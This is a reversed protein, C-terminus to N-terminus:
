FSCRRLVVGGCDHGLEGWDNLLELGGLVWACGEGEEGFGLDREQLEVGQCWVWGEAWVDLVGRARDELETSQRGDCVLVWVCECSVVELQKWEPLGQILASCLSTLPRLNGAQIQQKQQDLTIIRAKM